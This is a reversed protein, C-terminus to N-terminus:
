GIGAVARLLPDFEEISLPQASLGAQLHAFVLEHGAEWLSRHNQELQQAVYDKVLPHCDIVLEGAGRTVTIIKALELERVAYRWRNEDITELHDTLGTVTRLGTIQQLEALSTTRDLLAVLRLIQQGPKSSLCLLYAQLISEVHGRQSEEDLVSHMRHRCDIRGNHVNTLYGALLSLSLAHGRYCAVANEFEVEAGVVGANKLLQVGAGSTMPPLHVSQVRGDRFAALDTLPYRSTVVCLGPNSTALEKVLLNVAADEIHGFHSGAPVQLSELGDLILLMRSRRICAALRMAKSWPTGAAPREDGFWELAHEIFCNGSIGANGNQWHFSWAYIGEAGRYDVQNLSSLWYNILSSKGEGAFAIIEVMNTQRNLWCQDLRQLEQERGVLQISTAPLTGTAMRIPTSQDGVQATRLQHRIEAEFNEFALSFWATEIHFSQAVAMLQTMPICSGRSTETGLCWRSICQKTIGLRRALDANSKIGPNIQLQYLLQLKKKLQPHREMTASPM